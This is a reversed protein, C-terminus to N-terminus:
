FLHSNITDVGGGRKRVCLVLKLIFLFVGGVTYWYRYRYVYSSINLRNPMAIGARLSM